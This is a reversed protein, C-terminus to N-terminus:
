DIVLTEMQVTQLGALKNYKDVQARLKRGLETSLKKM